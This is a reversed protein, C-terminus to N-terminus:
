YKHAAHAGFMFEFGLWVSHADRERFAKLRDYNYQLRFRSFETPHWAVLPSIRYRDDRFPDSNRRVLEITGAALDVNVNNGSGSAYEYRLGTTWNKRFGYLLQTYFGWDELTNRGLIIEDGTIFVGDPGPNFFRDATYDRKMIEGEFLLFPWGRFHNVPRWKLKMDAGYIWTKGDPGTANPGLLGSLGMKMTWEDSLEWSNDWRALYAFDKLSRVDRDVFPRGGIAREEFFEGNALFSAMTEGNANQMGFHFESFWPLPTLWGLRFGPGRMGDAGFLRTNIIPQDQWHWQHPHQPNIRGFETFFHGAELQLGFPLRQTTLFAEELEFQSEGEIPDLFYILHVEGTFYPDVAGMLSLEVNQVTFGRKRPDHGGGQLTGLEPDRVTSGGAAVLADLSIDILKLTTGGAQYSLIDKKPEGEKPLLIEKAKEIMSAKSPESPPTEKPRAAVPQESPKTAKIETKLEEILKQQEQITQEQRKLAEELAKIRDELTQAFASTSFILLTALTILIKM